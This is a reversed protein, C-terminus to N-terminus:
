RLRAVEDDAWELAPGPREFTRAHRVDYGLGGPCEATHMVVAAWGDGVPIIICSWDDSYYRHAGPLPDSVLWDPRESLAEGLTQTAARQRPVSDAPAATRPM